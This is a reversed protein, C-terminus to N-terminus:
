LKFNEKINDKSLAALASQKGEPQSAPQPPFSLDDFAEKLSPARVLLANARGITLSQSAAVQTASPPQPPKPHHWLVFALLLSAACAAAWAMVVYPRRARPQKEIQLSEPALPRFEKLYREFQDDDLIPV